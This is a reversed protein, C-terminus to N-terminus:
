SDDEAFDALDSDPDWREDTRRFAFRSGSGHEKHTAPVSHDAAPLLSLLWARGVSDALEAAEGTVEDADAGILEAARALLPFVLAADREDFTERDFLSLGVLGYVILHRDRKRAGLSAMSEAWSVIAWSRDRTMTERVARKGPEDLKTFGRCQELVSADWSGGLEDLGHPSPVDLQETLRSM